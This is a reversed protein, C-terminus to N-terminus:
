LKGNIIRKFGSKYLEENFNMLLGLKIDTMKLYTLTQATHIPDLQSVSKLELLVKNDIIIDAKLKANLEVGDYKVRIPVQRQVDINYKSLEYYLCEEYVNELLGPGLERHVRLGCNFAIGALQNETM